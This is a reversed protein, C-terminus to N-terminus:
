RRDAVQSSFRDIVYHVVLQLEPHFHVWESSSSSSGSQVCARFVCAKFVCAALVRQLGVGTFRLFRVSISDPWVILSMLNCLKCFLFAPSGTKRMAKLRNEKQNYQDAILSAFPMRIAQMRVANVCRVQGTEEVRELGSELCTRNNTFKHVDYRESQSWRDARKTRGDDSQGNLANLADSIGSECRSIRM